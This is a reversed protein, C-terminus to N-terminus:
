FMEACRLTGGPAPSPSIRDLYYEPRGLGSEFGARNVVPEGKKAIRFVILQFKGSPFYMGEMQFRPQFIYPNFKSMGNKTYVIENGVYTAVHAVNEGRTRYALLDGSQLAEGSKVVRYKQYVADLLDRDTPVNKQQYSNGENVSLGSNYCNPGSCVTYTNINKRIFPQLIKALPITVSGTSSKKLLIRLYRELARPDRTGAYLAAIGAIDDKNTFSLDVQLGQRSPRNPVFSRILKLKLHDNLLPWTDPTYFFYFTGDIEYIKDNLEAIAHAALGSRQFHTFAEERSAFTDSPPAQKNKLLSAYVVRLIETPLAAKLEPKLSIFGEMERMSYFDNIRAYDEPPLNKSFRQELQAYLEPSMGSSKLTQFFEQAHDLVWVEPGDFFDKKWETVVRASVAPTIQTFSLVGTGGITPAALALSAILLTLYIKLVLKAV